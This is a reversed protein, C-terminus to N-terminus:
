STWTSKAFYNTIKEYLIMNTNIHLKNFFIAWKGEHELFFGGFIMFIFVEFSGFEHLLRLYRKNSDDSEIRKKKQEEFTLLDVDCFLAKEM